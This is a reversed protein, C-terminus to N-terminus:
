LRDKHFQRQEHQEYTMGTYIAGCIECLDKPIEEPTEKIPKKIKAKDIYPIYEQKYNPDLLNSCIMTRAKNGFIVNKESDVIILGLKKTGWFSTKGEPYKTKTM